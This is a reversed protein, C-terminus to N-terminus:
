RGGAFVPWVRRSSSISSFNAAKWAKRFPLSAAALGDEVAEPNLVLDIVVDNQLDGGRPRESMGFAELGGM